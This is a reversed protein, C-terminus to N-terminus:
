DPFVDKPRGFMVMHLQTLPQEAMRSVFLRGGDSGELPGFRPIGIRVGGVEVSNIIKYSQSHPIRSEFEDPLATIYEAVGHALPPNVGPVPAPVTGTRNISRQREEDSLGLRERPFADFFMQCLICGGAASHQLDGANRGPVVGYNQVGPVFLLRM